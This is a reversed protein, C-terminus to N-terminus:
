MKKIRHHYTVDEKKLVYNMWDLNSLPKYIKLMESLTRDM